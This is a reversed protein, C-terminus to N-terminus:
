RCRLSTLRTATPPEMGCDVSAEATTASDVPVTERATAEAVRAGKSAGCDAQVTLECRISRECENHLEVACTGLDCRARAHACPSGADVVTPREGTTGTLTATVAPAPTAPPEPAPAHPACGVLICVLALRSRARM